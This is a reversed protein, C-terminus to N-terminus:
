QLPNTQEPFLESIEVLIYKFFKLFSTYIEISKAYKLYYYKFIDYTTNFVVQQSM